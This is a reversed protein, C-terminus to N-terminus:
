DNGKDEFIHKILADDIISTVLQSINMDLEKSIQELLKHKTTSIRITLMKDKKHKKM